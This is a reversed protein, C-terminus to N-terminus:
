LKNKLKKLEKRIEELFIESARSNVRFKKWVFVMSMTVPPDLPVFTLSSNKFTNILNDICLANAFGNEM